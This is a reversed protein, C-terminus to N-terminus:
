PSSDKSAMMRVFYVILCFWGTILFMGGVPTLGTPIAVQSAANLYISGSFVVVGAAFCWGAMALVFSRAHRMHAALALLALAHYFHITLATDWSRQAAGGSEALLHAGAAALIVASFGLVAATAGSAAGGPLQRPRSM